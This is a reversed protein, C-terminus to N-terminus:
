RDNGGRLTQWLDILMMAVGLGAVVTLAATQLKLVYPAIFGILLAAAILGVCMRYVM